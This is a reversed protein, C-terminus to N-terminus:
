RVETSTERDDLVYRHLAPMMVRPLTGANMVADMPVIGNLHLLYATLAYVEPDSLSGPQAFPMARRIYDFLTTAYPWYNGITKQNENGREGPARFQEAEPRGVLVDGLRPVGEGAPGHCSACKAAYIPAGQVATGEGAPLGTGDPMVDIDLAAIQARTAPRGFGFREPLRESGAPEAPAFRSALGGLLAADGAREATRGECGALVLSFLVLPTARMGM